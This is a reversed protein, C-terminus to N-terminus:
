QAVRWIKLKGDYGGSALRTGDPSFSVGTIMRKGAKLTQILTSHRSERLRITGDKRGLAFTKGDTALTFPEGSGNATLEDRSTSRFVNRAIFWQGVRDDNQADLMRTFLRTNDRSWALPFGADRRKAEVKGTGVNWISIETQTAESNKNKALTRATAFRQGDHSLVVDCGCGGGPRTIKRLLKGTKVDWFQLEEKASAVLTKGDPMWAFNYVHAGKSLPYPEKLTRVLQGTRANWLSVGVLQSTGVAFLGGDPSYAIEYVSLFERALVKRRTGTAVDWFCLRANEDGSALTKGDPSWAFLSASDSSLGTTRQPYPLSYLPSESIPAAQAVSGCLALTLILTRM